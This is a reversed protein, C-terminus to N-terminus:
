SGSPDVDLAHLVLLELDIRVARRVDDDSTRSVGYVDVAVAGAPDISLIQAGRSCHDVALANGSDIEVDTLM